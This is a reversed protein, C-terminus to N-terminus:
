NIRTLEPVIRFGQQAVMAKDAATGQGMTTLYDGTMCSTAGAAFMESQRNGLCTERGGAVKLDMQPMVLRFIAIIALGEDPSLTPQEALRTGSIPHLFNLPVCDPDVEDRITLALDLRDAWTEGLGFLGGCCLSMGTAKAAQLTTLREDYSHTTVLEAFLRRSTELNHHYRTVGAEALQRAQDPTLEGLSACPLLGCSPDSKMLRTAEIVDDLDRQTPRRGANVIGMRGAADHGAAQLAAAHMDAPTTRQANAGQETDAKCSQACWACDEGCGGLKGAVISCMRVQDGFVHRRVEGAAELLPATDGSVFDLVRAAGEPTVRTGTRAQDVLDRLFDNRITEM